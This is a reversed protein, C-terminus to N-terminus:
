YGQGLKKCFGYFCCCLRFKLIIFLNVRVLYIVMIVYIYMDIIDYYIINILNVM